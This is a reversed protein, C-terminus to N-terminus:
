QSGSLNRVVPLWVADEKELYARFDEPAMVEAATDGGQTAFL